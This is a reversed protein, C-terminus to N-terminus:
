FRICRVQQKRNWATVSDPLSLVCFIFVRARDWLYRVKMLNTSDPFRPNYLLYMLSYKSWLIIWLRVEKVIKSGRPWSIQNALYRKVRYNEVLVDPLFFWSSLKLHCYGKNKWHWNQVWIYRETISNEWTLFSFLLLEAKDANWPLSIVHTSTSLFCQTIQFFYLKQPLWKCYDCTFSSTQSEM